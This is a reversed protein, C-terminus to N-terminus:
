FSSFPLLAPFDVRVGEVKALEEAAEPEEAM